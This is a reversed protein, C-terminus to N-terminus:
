VTVPMIPLLGYTNYGFHNAGLDRYPTQAMAVNGQLTANGNVVTDITGAIFTIAEGNAADAVKFVNDLIAGVNAGAQDVYIGIKAAAVGLFLNREIVTRTSNHEIWINHDTLKNGFRNDHIWWQPCDASDATNSLWIGYKGADQWAFYNDHINAKWVGGSTEICGHTAGCSLELGAIEVNNVSVLFCATDAPANFFPSPTAQSPTGIIHVKAKNVAIPWTEGTAASPYGLVVIFDNANATCLSLAYTLTKVPEYPTLGQNLNSGSTGEVFLVKGWGPQGGGVLTLPWRATGAFGWIGPTGLDIEQNTTVPPSSFGDM